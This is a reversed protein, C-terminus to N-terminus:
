MSTLDDHPIVFSMRVTTGQGQISEVEISHNLRRCVEKAIYLGMGTSERFVRGNEGTFHPDFVRPIDQPPIGVGYDEVELVYANDKRFLCITIESQGASYKVANTLIQSLIFSLWKRDSIIVLGQEAEVSPYIENRIFLRRHDRLVENLLELVDIKELFFDLEFSELRSMYLVMDLGKEMRDLQEQLDAFLPQPHGKTLLNAISLPTKMQHVWQNMFLLHQKQQSEYHHVRETFLEYQKRLLRETQKASPSHAELRITDDLDTVNEAKSLLLYLTRNQVYRVILYVALFVIGLLLIYLLITLRKYGDLWIVALLILLQILNLSILPLHDRLFLKM